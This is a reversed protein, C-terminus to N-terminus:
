DGHCCSGLLEPNTNQGNLHSLLCGAAGGSVLERRRQLVGCSGNCIFDSPEILVDLYPASGFMLVSM